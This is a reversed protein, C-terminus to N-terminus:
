PSVAFSLREFGGGLRKYLRGKPNEPRRLSVILLCADPYHFHLMDERSIAPSAAPHSHVIMRLCEGKRELEHLLSVWEAPDVRFHAEDAALNHLPIYHLNAYGKDCAPASLVGVGERPLERKLHDLITQWVGESMIMNAKEEGCCPLAEIVQKNSLNLNWNASEFRQVM